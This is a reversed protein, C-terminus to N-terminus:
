PAATWVVSAVEVGLARNDDSVRNLDRPRFTSVLLQLTASSPPAVVPLEFTQWDQGVKVVQVTVPQARGTNDILRVTVGTAVTGTARGSRLRVQVHAPGSLAPCKILAQGTTWRFGQEGKIQAYFGQIWGLDATGLDIREPAVSTFTNWSWRQLDELSHTEWSFEHVAGAANGEHRLIDGRLLHAYPHDPKVQIAADLLHLVVQEDRGRGQRVLGVRALASTPDLQLATAPDGRWLAWHKRVLMVTEQPYPRHLVLLLGLAASSVVAGLNRIPQRRWQGRLMCLSWATYSLLAPYLPLRYRLEVHFLLNTVAIYAVWPVFLWRLRGDPHLWLGASGGVMLLLWLGDGGLLRLWVEVPPVWIAPRTRLDDFYQLAVLNQAEHWGKALVQAPAAVLDQLGRQTALRQRAARDDGLAYLQRKVAERGAPDNDLWLNEAGTTDVLILAHYRLANRVTWPVIVGLALLGFAAALRWRWERWARSRMLLWVVGLPVLPLAVSRLLALAGIIVGGCAAWGLSNRRDAGLLLAFAVTLGGVFLTETLLETANAVLTFNCAALLAAVAPVVWAGGTLGDVRERRQDAAVFSRALWWVAGITATSLLAQVLRVRQVQSDFLKFVVALFVPYLPPRMLPLEQYGKGQLWHLAQDFYAVEDGGLPYREHWQWVVLRLALGLGLALLLLVGDRRRVAM